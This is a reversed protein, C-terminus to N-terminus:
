KSVSLGKASSVLYAAWARDLNSSACFNPKGSGSDTGCSQLLGDAYAKEAWKTAWYTTDTLDAFVTGTPTPPTYDMGYKLRLGFVAGQERTFLDRPCFKIPDSAPYQCGATLGADFMGQAWKQAWTYPDSWDDNVVTYPASPPAYSSGFNGRLMFVASEARDMTRDPCFMLPSTSCGSTYGADYLAQIYDHLPHDFPVDSFTAQVFTASVSKVADMTLSCTGTGTCAGSWGTFKYYNTAPTATLVVVTGHNYSASCSTGCNIGTKDSTITGATTNSNTVSLTYSNLTAAYNQAASNSSISAYTRSTPSFTYGTLAPTVTGSWGATVSFSYDGASDATVSTPTGNVSYSLVASGIGSNGSIVYTVESISVNVAATNSNATGDNARYTFSDSGFINLSPAYRLTSSVVTTTGKSGQAVISYTLADNDLDSCVPSAYGASNEATNLTTDYCIPADNVAQITVNVTITATGGNGDSIQVVFSDSGNFNTAPTYNIVKSAGMGSVSATGHSASSSISWTLTDSADIDTAHLTLAFATPSGDESMTVTTSTGATIVPSDNVAQITVNVTITATGGNGDSVQVVFSDSGNFNTAPSYVITKSSGTGAATATGHSAPSSISWTLTDSVNADTAHLTLAFATPSSDESMTVTTSAGETIVPASNADLITVNVTITDTLTGDSVQVVFSDSGTYDTTPTYTIAKSSGTGSASATGHLAPTSINWTLADSDADTANLTLSFATPSGNKSMSVSTADGETIVPAHNTSGSATTFSSTSSTTSTTGDNVVAYWEYESNNSLGNWTVSTTSGSTVNNVTGILTYTGAADMDYGLNKQDPDSTLSTGTYPSYTTMYIMDNAPSFRFRRLYGNGYSMDQYDAMVVHITHGDTGTGAVYAAGDGSSHMHGCLMLFLNAHDRLATYTAQNNWSNDTNLIDHQEVIARRNSYTDLLGDAWNIVATSPSYQLNILIFDMGDASFLSYTNYDDYSGKFWYGNSYLHSSYRSVGFYNAYYTTGMATDHNGPAVTYWVNGSDLLDFASDATEYQTTSSATNVTDGTTTAFVINEASKNNVIWNAQSTLMSSSYQSENQIDPFLVLMFDNSSAAGAPRGYFSVSMPDADADTVNAQLSPSTSVGTANDAPSSLTIAPTSNSVTGSVAVDVESATGSTHAINGSYPGKTASLLHVYITTSPVSGGTPSLTVTAGFGSGSTQSIEFGSPATIILNSSLNTGSVTYSQESSAVGITSTFASLSGSTAITPTTTSACYTINLTPGAYSTNESSAFQLDDSGSTSSYNQMTVGYNSTSGAIWGQVVSIGDSNLSVTKTGTSSFSSTGAGWLNTNYRDSTTNAAGSTGWSNTGDYTLWTAGDDTESSAGTGEVWVRRMNYLNYTQSSSTSVYLAISASSVTATSPISSVNWKFLSGRNTGSSNNTAKLTTSTGYNNSTNYGSMYTDDAAELNVTSCSSVTGSVALDKETAGASTHTINGSFSGEAASYLQVYITTSSIAGGTPTLTLSSSYTSGNTSIRFGTPATIILNSTLDSATVTYTQTTSPTGPSTSFASLSGTTLITPGTTTVCYTINLTPGAYSTNESSAIALNDAASGSYNQITLGYNNASTTIWDQVAAIGSSNLDVTKSGTSSFSTTSAGWLNTDYRDSSTNQAGTTGWSGTGAGYYNWSAGSGSAGDNSGEVWSRRLKYLNYATASTDTVYFTLSASSVTATAPISSLDWRLLAGRYQDTSSGQKYYPNMQVTTAGGYNYSGRTSGSTMYTDTDAVPSVSTCSSGDTEFSAASKLSLTEIKTFTVSISKNGDMTISLPNDTSSVDGSWASFEWETEPTAIISVITGAAYTGGAPDLVVSGSGAVKVDLTYQIPIDTPAVAEPTATTAPTPAETSETEVIELTPEPQAPEETPVPTETVSEEAPPPTEATAEETPVETAVTAEPTEEVIQAAPQALAPQPSLSQAAVSAGAPFLLSILLVINFVIYFFRNTKRSFRTM